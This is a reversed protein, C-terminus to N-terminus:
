PRFPLAAALETPGGAPSTVTLAGDFAALRRQIGRLGSGRSPDAGGRGDDHVVLRLAHEDCWLRIHARGARSHRGINTLAEAIVFYMASEVPAPLQQDVQVDVDIPVPSALALAKVAGGLGRESLVPPHIGRVLDQLETLAADASARAEAMLTVAVDPNRRMEAEAMGLSMMLAVLRAQAGDHLDREIRRLEATRADITETRSEALRDLQARLRVTAAPALLVASLRASGAALGRCLWWGGVLLAAGLPMVAYARAMDSVPLLVSMTLHRPHQAEILPAALVFLGGAPVILSLLGLSGVIYHTLLWGLDRWTAPDDLVTRLRGTLPGRVPEYPDAVARGARAYVRRREWRALPRVAGASLALFPLGAAPSLMLTLCSALFLVGAVCATVGGSLLAAVIQGTLRVLRILAAGAGDATRRGAAFTQKTDPVARECEATM